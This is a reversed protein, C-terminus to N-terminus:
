NSILFPASEQRVYGVAVFDQSLNMRDSGGTSAEITGGRSEFPVELWFELSVPGGEGGLEPLTHVSGQFHEVDVLIDLVRTSQALYQSLTGRRRPESLPSQLPPM